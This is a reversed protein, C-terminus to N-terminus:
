CKPRIYRLESEPGVAEFGMVGVRRMVPERSLYGDVITGRHRETAAAAVERIRSDFDLSLRRSCDNVVSLACLVDRWDALDDDVVLGFLSDELAAPIKGRVAHIAMRMSFSLLKYTADLDMQSRLAGVVDNLPTGRGIQFELVRKEQPLPIPLDEGTSVGLDPPYAALLERISDIAPELNGVDMV